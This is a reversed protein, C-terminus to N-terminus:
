RHSIAKLYARAFRKGLELQGNANYHVHDFIKGLGDTSVLLTNPSSHQINKQAKQVLKTMSFAKDDPNIEGMIFMSQPSKLHNRLGNIFRRLNDEYQTASHKDRADKEGQMWLIAEIKPSNAIGALKVQRLTSKYLGSGPLWQKISSGTAVSKIIIHTDHPYARAISHAFGVEPGFFAYRALKHSRGQYYFKVNAPTKRYNSSLYHTKGKGMMNSQGALIYIRDKAAVHTSLLAFNLFLVILLLGYSM